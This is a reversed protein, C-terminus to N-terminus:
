EEIWKGTLFDFSKVETEVVFTVRLLHDLRVGLFRLYKTPDEMENWELIRAKHLTPWDQNLGDLKEKARDKWLQFWGGPYRNKLINDDPSFGLHEAWLIRRLEEPITSSPLGGVENFFLANVEIAREELVDKKTIAWETSPWLDGFLIHQSLILEQGALNASGITAWKDDVIGVKSHVYNRIIRDGYDTKEHSWLTFAGFRDPFRSQLNHILKTQLKHYKPADVANNLLMIVQLNPRKELALHLAAAIAPETFYQNELYIFDEANRIARQYAELIGTEGYAFKAYELILSEYIVTQEDGIATKLIDLFKEEGVFVQNKINELKTLVDDPVGEKKLKEISEETVKFFLVNEFRKGGPLTRVVQVAANSPIAPPVPAPGPVIGKAERWLLAFTEDIHKVAPGEIRVSVDHVPVKIVNGTLLSLKGRRPDDIRHKNDDFYEQLLPSANMYAVTGDIVFLKAHLANNYETRFLRVQVTHPSISAATDYLDKVHDATDFPYPVLMIDNMLLRVGVGRKNATLLVKELRKGSILTGPPNEPDFNEPDLEPDFVTFLRLVDFHLQSCHIFNDAQEVGNTIQEWADKNDILVDVRNDESLMQASGTRLTVLWGEIDATPIEIRMFLSEESVDEKEPSEYILRKVTDFVRVKIDPESELWGYASTPYKIEYHGDSSTTAKGLEIDADISEVDYAVVTLGGIGNGDSDVVYGSVGKNSM